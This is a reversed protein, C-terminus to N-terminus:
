TLHSRFRAPLAEAGAIFKELEEDTLGGRIGDLRLSITVVSNPAFVKASSGLVCLRSTSVASKSVGAGVALCGLGCGQGLGPM